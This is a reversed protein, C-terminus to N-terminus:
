ADVHPHNHHQHSPIQLGHASNMYSISNMGQDRTCNIPGILLIKWLLIKINNIYMPFHDCKHPVWPSTELELAPLSWSSLFLRIPLIFSSSALPLTRWITLFRPLDRRQTTEKDTIPHDYLRGWLTRGLASHSHICMGTHTYWACTWLDTCIRTYACICMHECVVNSFPRVCVLVRYINPTM